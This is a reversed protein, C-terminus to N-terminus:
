GFDPKRKIIVVLKGSMRRKLCLSFLNLMEKQKDTLEWGSLFKGNLDKMVNVGTNSNYFHTVSQGRYTGQIVATAPDNVHKKIATEFM